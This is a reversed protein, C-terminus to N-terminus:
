LYTNDTVPERVLTVNGTPISEINYAHKGQLVVVENKCWMIKHFRQLQSDFLASLHSPSMDNEYPINREAMRRKLVKINMKLAIRGSACKPTVGSAPTVSQNNGEKPMETADENNDDSDSDFPKIFANREHLFSVMAGNSPNLILANARNAVCIWGNPTCCVDKPELQVQGPQAFETIQWLIQGTELKMAIVQKEQVKSFVVADIQNSYCMAHVPLFHLHVQLKHICLFQGDARVLVLISSTKWDCVLVTNEAGTCMVHPKVDEYVVDFHGTQLDYIRIVQCTPHPCGEVLLEEDQSVGGIRCATLLGYSLSHVCATPWEISPLPKQIRKVTIVEQPIIDRKNRCVLYGNVFCATDAALLDAHM